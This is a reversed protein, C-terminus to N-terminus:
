EIQSLMAITLQKDLSLTIAALGGGDVAVVVVTAVALRIPGYSKRWARHTTHKPRSAPRDDLLTDVYTRLHATYLKVLHCTLKQM